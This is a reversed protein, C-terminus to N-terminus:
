GQTPLKEITLWMLPQAVILYCLPCSRSSIPMVLRAIFHALIGRCAGGIVSVFLLVNLAAISLGLVAATAAATWSSACLLFASM